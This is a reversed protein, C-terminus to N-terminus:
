LYPSFCPIISNGLSLFRRIKEKSIKKGGKEKKGKEL